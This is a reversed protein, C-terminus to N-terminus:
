LSPRFPHPSTCEPRPCRLECTCDADPTRGAAVAEIAEAGLCRDCFLWSRRVRMEALMQDNRGILAIQQAAAQQETIQAAALVERARAAMEAAAARLQRMYEDRDSM